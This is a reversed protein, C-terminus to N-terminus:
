TCTQQRHIDSKKSTSFFLSLSLSLPLPLCFSSLCPRLQWRLSFGQPEPISLLEASNPNWVNKQSRLYSMSLQIRGESLFFIYVSVCISMFLFTCVCAFVCVSVCVCFCLPFYERIDHQLFAVIMYDATMIFTWVIHTNKDGCTNCANVEM